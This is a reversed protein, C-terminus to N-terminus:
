ARGKGKKVQLLRRVTRLAMELADPGDDHDANPFQMLQEALVRAGPSDGKLRLVRDRLPAGLRSIRIEKAKRNDITYTPPPPVGLERCRKQVLPRILHQFQNGEIVLADPDHEECIRLGVDIAEEVPWRGMVAAAWLGGARDRVLVAFASWDGYRADSGKSPDWAVVTCARESEPPWDEFWLHRGFYDAPWEGLVNAILWNGKLLRERDVRSLAMLNARYGPDAENLKANSELTAPVFTFSKPLLDPYGELLEARTDAWRITEGDRVFWRLRGAREPIPYGTAPDVYWAVWRAVWSAADPNCGARVYPRVGCTSRNRSLMYVFQHETFTTLEDFEILPVESSHWKLVDAEHQMHGFSVSAGGPFTWSLSGAKPVGGAAPYLRVSQDWLAGENTIEPHTRRFVVAGFPPNGVHYLPELLLSWSKGGGAAGGYVAIDASCSAFREQPGPQPRIANEPPPPPM